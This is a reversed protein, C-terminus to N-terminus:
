CLIRCSCNYDEDFSHGLANYEKNIYDTFSVYIDFVIPLFVVFSVSNFLM